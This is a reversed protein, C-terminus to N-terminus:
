SCAGGDCLIQDLNDNISPVVETAARDLAIIGLFWFFVYAPTRLNGFAFVAAICLTAFLAIGRM